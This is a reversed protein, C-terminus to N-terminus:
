LAAFYDFLGREIVKVPNLREQLSPRYDAPLEFEIQTEDAIRSGNRHAIVREGYGTVGDVTLTGLGKKEVTLITPNRTRIDEEEQPLLPWRKKLISGPTARILFAPWQGPPSHYVRIREWRSFYYDTWDYAKEADFDYQEPHSIVFRFEEAM